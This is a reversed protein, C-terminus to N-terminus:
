KKLYKRMRWWSGRICKDASVNLRVYDDYIKHIPTMFEMNEKAVLAIKPSYFIYYPIAKTPYLTPEIFAQVMVNTPDVEGQIIRKVEDFMDENVLKDLESKADHYQPNPLKRRKEQRILFQPDYRWATNLQLKLVEFINTVQELDKNKNISCGEM